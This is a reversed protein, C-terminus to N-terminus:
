VRAAEAPFQSSITGLRNCSMELSCRWSRSGITMGDLM